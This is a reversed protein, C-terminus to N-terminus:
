CLSYNLKYQSPYSNYHCFYLARKVNLKRTPEAEKTYYCVILATISNM